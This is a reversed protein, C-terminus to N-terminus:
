KERQGSFSAKKEKRKEKLDVGVAHPLEWALSQIWAAATVQAATMAMASGKVQQITGLISGKGATPNKVWQAM